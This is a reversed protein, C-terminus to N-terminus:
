MGTKTSLATPTVAQMASSLVTSQRNKRRAALGENMEATSRDKAKQELVEPDEPQHVKPKSGM